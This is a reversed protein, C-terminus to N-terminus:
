KLLNHERLSQLVAQYHEEPLTDGMSQTWYKKVDDEFIFGFGSEIEAIFESAMDM